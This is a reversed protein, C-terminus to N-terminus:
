IDTARTTQNGPARHIVPVKHLTPHRFGAYKLELGQSLLYILV